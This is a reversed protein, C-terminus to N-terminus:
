SIGVSVLATGNQIDVFIGTTCRIPPDFVAHFPSANPAVDLAELLISWVDTGTDELQVAMVETAHNNHITIWHIYGSGTKLTADSTVVSSTTYPRTM